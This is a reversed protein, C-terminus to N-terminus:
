AKMGILPPMHLEIIDTCFSLTVESDQISTYLDPTSILSEESINILLGIDEAAPDSATDAAALEITATGFEKSHFLLHRYLLLPEVSTPM